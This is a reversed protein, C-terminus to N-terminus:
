DEKIGKIYDRYDAPKKSFRWRGLYGSWDCLICILYVDRGEQYTHLEHGCIPCVDARKSLSTPVMKVKGRVLEQLASRIAESITVGKETCLKEVAQLLEDPIRANILKM